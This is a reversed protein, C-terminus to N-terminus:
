KQKTAEWTGNIGFDPAEIKGTMTDGEVKMIFKFLVLEPGMNVRISFIFTSEELSIDEIPTEILSDYQDSMHGSLKGEELRLVLTLVNPDPEGELTGVGEWIGVLDEPKQASLTSFIMIILVLVLSWKTKKM